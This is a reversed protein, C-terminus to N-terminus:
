STLYLFFASEPLGYKQHLMDLWKQNIILILFHDDEQRRDSSTLMLISNQVNSVFSMKFGSGPLSLKGLADTTIEGIPLHLLTNSSAVHNAIIDQKKTPNHPALVGTFLVRSVLAPDVHRRALKEKIADFSLTTIGDYTIDSSSAAISDM